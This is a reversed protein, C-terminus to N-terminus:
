PLLAAYHVRYGAPLALARKAEGPKQGVPESETIGPPWQASKLSPKVM